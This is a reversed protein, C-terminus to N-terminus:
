WSLLGSASNTILAAYSNNLVDYTKNMILKVPYDKLFPEYFSVDQSPAGAIVFQYNPYHHVISLM